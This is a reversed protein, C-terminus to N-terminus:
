DCLPEEVSDDIRGEDPLYVGAWSPTGDDSILWCLNDSTKFYTKSQFEWEVAEVEDEDKPLPIIEKKVSPTPAAVATAVKKSPPAVTPKEVISFRGDKYNWM